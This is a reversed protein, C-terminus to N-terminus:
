RNNIIRRNRHSMLFMVAHPGNVMLSTIPDSLILRCLQIKRRCSCSTICLKTQILNWIVRSPSQVALSDSETGQNHYPPALVCLRSYETLIYLVLGFCLINTSCTLNSHKLLEKIAYSITWLSWFHPFMGLLFLYIYKHHSLHVSIFLVKLLTTNVLIFPLPWTWRWLLLVSDRM